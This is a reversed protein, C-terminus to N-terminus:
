ELRNTQKTRETKNKRQYKEALQVGMGALVKIEATGTAGPSLVGEVPLEPRPLKRSQYM